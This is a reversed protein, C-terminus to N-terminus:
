KNAKYERQAREFNKRVRISMDPPEAEGSLWKEDFAPSTSRIPGGPSIVRSQHLGRKNVVGQAKSILRLALAEDIGKLVALGRATTLAVINPSLGEDEWDEIIKGPPAKQYYREIALQDATKLGAENIVGAAEAIINKAGVKGIGKYSTLEKVTATALKEATWGDTELMAAIDDKLSKLEALTM